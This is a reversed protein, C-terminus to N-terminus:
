RSVNIVQNIKRTRGGDEGRQGRRQKREEKSLGHYPMNKKKNVSEKNKKGEGEKKKTSPKRKGPGTGGWAQNKGPNGKRLL